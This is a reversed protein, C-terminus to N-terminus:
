LQHQALKNNIRLLNILNYLVMIALLTPIKYNLASTRELILLNYAAHFFTAFIIAQFFTSVKKPNKTAVVYGIIGATGIHIIAIETLINLNPLPNSMSALGLEIFLFGLGILFSNLLYTRNFSFTDIKKAIIIYKFIEEICAALIIFQPMIFLQSFSVSSASSMTTSFIIFIILEIVIAGLAAIIGWFFSELQRM